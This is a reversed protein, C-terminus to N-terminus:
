TTRYEIRQGKNIPILTTLGGSAIWVGEPPFPLRNRRIVGVAEILIEDLPMVLQKPCVLAVLEGDLYLNVRRTPSAVSNSLQLSGSGLNASVADAAVGNDPPGDFSPLELGWLSKVTKFDLPGRAPEILVCIEVEALGSHNSDDGFSIRDSPLGGLLVCQGGFHLSSSANTGGVKYAGVQDFCVLVNRQTLYASELSRM